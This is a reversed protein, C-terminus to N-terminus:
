AVKPWLDSIDLSLGRRPPSKVVHYPSSVKRTRNIKHTLYIAQVLM